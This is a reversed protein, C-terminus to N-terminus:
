FAEGIRFFVLFPEDEIGQVENDRLIRYAVDLAAPLYWLRLRLGVGAALSVGNEFPNASIGAGGVDAFAVAGYPKQYPLFRGELGGEFLSLGGVPVDECQVVGADDPECSTAMPSLFHRGFGRMGWAGGGFLRPGLPVGADTGLFVWGAQARLGLSLTKPVIPIFVRGEPAVTLYRHTGMPDGPNFSNRLALLWGDLAEVPNDREDWVISGQLEPGLSHEEDSLEYADRTADDFPGFGVEQGWRFFLDLDFFLGSGQFNRARGPAIATRIGPGATVERLHFGPYLEDRFRASLRFDLLRAFFMPKLYRVLAEGYLGVPDDTDGRWLWGYGIRGELLLHHWPGFLNRFWFTAGIATDIREPDFELGARVRLQQSPAEVVHIKVDVTESLDRPILNGKDDIREPKIEGGTDPADGPVYFTTETDGRIFTSAFAGTDLLHFEGDFRKNADFPEGTVLGSREIILEDPVKVNGEVVIRGTKTKPGADVYYYWHIVRKERNVFARSYVRAHGYGERRLHDEMDRRVYRFKELDVDTEGSEFPIMDALAEEQEPPSQMLKVDAISYRPGEQITWTIHVIDEEAEIEVLPEDVEVDFYGHTHWFAQIRRRDEGERFESYYRGPLILSSARMGLRDKLPAYDVELDSGDRSKLTVSGVEIDTEGPVKMPREASCGVLSLLLAIWARFVVRKALRLM